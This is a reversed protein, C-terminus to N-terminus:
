VHKDKIKYIIIVLIVGLINGFLDQTEFARVPIIIHLLELIISLSILYIILFKIKQTNRYAFFGLASILIFVLLHNSSIILNPAIMIDETINPQLNCNNYLLCGIISGPFLYFIILVLNAIYFGLILFNNINKM